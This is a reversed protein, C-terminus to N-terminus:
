NSEKGYKIRRKNMMNGFVIYYPRQEDGMFKWEVYDLLPIGVISLVVWAACFFLNLQGFAFTGPLGRYDWINFQRNVIMGTIFEGGICALSSLLVQLEFPMDYTFINNLGAMVLGCCGALIFMSPATYGRFALEILCYIAGGVLFTAASAIFRKM